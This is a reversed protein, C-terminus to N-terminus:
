MEQVIAHHVFDKLQFVTFEKRASKANVIFDLTTSLTLGIIASAAFDPDVEQRVCGRARLCLIEKSVIRQLEFVHKQVEDSWPRDNRVYEVILFRGFDQNAYLGEIFTYMMEKLAASSDTHQASIDRFCDVLRDLGEVLICQAIDAKSKFHYYVIGKSVGACDAIEDISAAEFGKAGMIESATKLLLSRTAAAKGM